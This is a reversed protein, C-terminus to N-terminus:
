QMLELLGRYYERVGEWAEPHDRYGHPPVPRGVEARLFRRLEAASQCRRARSYAEAARALNAARQERARADEAELRAEYQRLRQADRVFAGVLRLWDGDWDAGM